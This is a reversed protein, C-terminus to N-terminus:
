RTRRAAGRCSPSSIVVANREVPRVRLAEGAPGFGARLRLAAHGERDQGRQDREVRQHRQGPQTMLEVFVWSPRNVDNPSQNSSPLNASKSLMLVRERVVVPDEEAPQCCGATRRRAAGASGGNRAASAPYPRAFNSKGPRLPTKAVTIPAPRPARAGGEGDRLEQQEGLEAERVVGHATIMGDSTVREAEVEQPGERGLGHRALDELRGPDVAGPLDAGEESRRAAARERADDGTRSKV